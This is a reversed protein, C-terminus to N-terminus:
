IPKPSGYKVCVNFIKFVGDRRRRAGLKSQYRASLLSFGNEKSLARRLSLNGSHRIM